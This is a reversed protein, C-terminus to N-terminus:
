RSRNGVSAFNEEGNGVGGAAMSMASRESVKTIKSDLTQVPHVSTKSSEGESTGKARMSLLGLGFIVAGGFLTVLLVDVM